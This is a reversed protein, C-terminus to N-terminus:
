IEITIAECYVDKDNLVQVRERIRRLITDTKVHENSTVKRVRKRVYVRVYPRLRM